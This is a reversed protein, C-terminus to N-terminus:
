VNVHGVMSPDPQSQQRQQQQAAAQQRMKIQVPLLQHNALIPIVIASAAIIVAGWAGGDAVKTLAARVKPNTEAPKMLASALNPAGNAIVKGDFENALKVLEGLGKGLDTLQSSLTEQWGKRGSSTTTTTGTKSQRALRRCDICRDFQRGGATLPVDTGCDICQHMDYSVPEMDAPPLDTAPIITISM